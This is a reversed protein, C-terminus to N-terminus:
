VDLVLRGGRARGVCVCMQNGLKREEDTLIADRHEIDGSVVPTICSGCIGQTCSCPIGVKARHLVDILFEDKGVQLIKGSRALEVEFPQNDINSLKPAVFTESFLATDPWGNKIGTDLVWSMFVGPGCIYLQIGAIYNSLLEDPQFQQADGGDGLHVHISDAFPLDTLSDGFPLLAQSRACLHFEFPKGAEYLQHAMSLIPTIGIGGAILLYRDLQMNLPFNNRPRSINITQGITINNHMAVSGGRGPDERKVAIVYRNRDSASNCLSYQRLLGPAPQVDIHAGSTFDPLFHGKEAAQFEYANINEAISWVRSVKVRLSEQIEKEAFILSEIPSFLGRVPINQAELRQQGIEWAKHYRYFPISPFFHHVCHKTQGLMLYEFVKACRIYVTTQFPAEEWLVDKPHQIRAFFYIVLSVGIRQPIMWCLFFELAYPGALFFAHFGIYFTIGTVFEFREMPPRTMFRRVYWLSWVIDPFPIVFVALLPHTVVFIDDPDKSPDGVYRHHELHLYRYIGTTIGPLLAFCAITGLGDNIIRNRSVTRHTADHLPTFCAFIMVGNIAIMAIVPLSGEIFAATSLYLILYSVGMLLIQAPAWLPITTLSKFRPEHVIQELVERTNTSFTFAMVKERKIKLSYVTLYLDGISTTV